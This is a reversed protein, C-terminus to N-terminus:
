VRRRDSPEMLALLKEPNAVIRIGCIVGGIIDFVTANVPVGGKDIVTGPQGDLVVARIGSGAPIRKTVNLLFRAARHAGVVPRPAAKAKGGGDSWVVVDPALLELLAAVDGEVCAAGFRHV